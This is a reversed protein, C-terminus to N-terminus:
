VKDEQGEGVFPRCYISLQWEHFPKPKRLFEDRFEVEMGYVGQKPPCKLTFQENLQSSIKIHKVAFYGILRFYLFFIVFLRKQAPEAM